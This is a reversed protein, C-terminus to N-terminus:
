FMCEGRCLGLTRSCVCIRGLLMRLLDVLSKYHEYELEYQEENLDMCEVPFNMPEGSFTRNNGSFEFRGSFEDLSGQCYSPSSSFNGQDNDGTSMNFRHHRRRLNQFLEPSRQPPLLQLAFTEIILTFVCILERGGKLSIKGADLLAIPLYIMVQALRPERPRSM